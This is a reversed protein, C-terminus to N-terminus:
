LVIYKRSVSVPGRGFVVRYVRRVCSRLVRRGFGVVFVCVPQFCFRLVLSCLWAFLATVRAPSFFMMCRAWTPFNITMGPGYQICSQLKWFPPDVGRSSHRKGSLEYLTSKVHCSVSVPWFPWSGLIWEVVWGLFGVVFRFVFRSARVTEIMYLSWVYCRFCGSGFCGCGSLWNCNWAPFVM